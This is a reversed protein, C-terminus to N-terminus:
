LRGASGSRRSRRFSRSRGPSSAVLLLATV